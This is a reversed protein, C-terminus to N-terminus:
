QQKLIDQYTIREYGAPPQFEAAPIEQKKVAVIEEILSMNGDLSHQVTKTPYGNKFIEEIIDILKDSVIDSGLSNQSRKAIEIQLKSWKDIDVEESIAPDTSIWYEYIVRDNNYITYARSDFDAVKINDDSKKLTLDGVSVIDQKNLLAQKQIDQLFEDRSMTLYTNSEGFIMTVNGNNLDYIIASSHPAGSLEQKLKNDQVYLTVKQKNPSGQEYVEQEMILGSYANGGFAIVAFLVISLYCFLGTRRLM